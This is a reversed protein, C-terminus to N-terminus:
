GPAASMGMRDHRLDILADIGAAALVCLLPVLYAHYRSHVELVLHSLAVLTVLMGILLSAPRWVDRDAVMGIAALLALPAYLLQSVLWAVHVDRTPPGAALAYAAAYSEDAWMVVFKRPLLRLAGDPDEAIRDGVLSGAYESKEWASSGPFAAFRAADEANWMGDHERNAGVYLTWGGYASTSVSLDGHAQLNYAVVPLMLVGFVAMILMGTRVRHALRGPTMVVLALMPALMSVATARVYQGAALLVGTGVGVAASPRRLEMGLRVAAAVLMTFMPETLPVLVMLVQSPMVAYLAGAAAGVRVNWGARGISWALWATVGAFALNLMEIAFPGVGFLAYAGALAVPYGMPRHSFCCSGDLVGLAQNHIARNEGYIPADFAIALAARMAVALGIIALPVLAGRLARSGATRWALATVGTALVVYGAAFALGGRGWPRTSGSWLPDILLFLDDLAVLAVMGLAIVALWWAAARLREALRPARAAARDTV